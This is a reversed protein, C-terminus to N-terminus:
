SEKDAYHRRVVIVTCVAALIPIIVAGRDSPMPQAFGLLIAIGWTVFAATLVMWQTMYFYFARPRDERSVKHGPYFRAGTFIEDNIHGLWSPSCV